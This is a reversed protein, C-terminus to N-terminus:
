LVVAVKFMICSLFISEKNTTKTQSTSGMTPAERGAGPLWAFNEHGM